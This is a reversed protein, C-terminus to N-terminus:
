HKGLSDPKSKAQEILAAFSGSDLYPVKFPEDSVRIGEKCYKM